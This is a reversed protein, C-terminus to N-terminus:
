VTSYRLVICEHMVLWYYMIHLTCYQASPLKFQLRYCNLPSNYHLSSLLSFNIEVCHLVSCATVSLLSYYHVKVCHLVSIYVAVSLLTDWCLVNKGDTQLMTAGSFWTMESDPPPEKTICQVSKPTMFSSLDFRWSGISAAFDMTQLEFHESLDLSNQLSIQFTQM